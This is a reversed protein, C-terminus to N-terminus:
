TVLTLLLSIGMIGLLILVFTKLFIRLFEMVLISALTIFILNFM